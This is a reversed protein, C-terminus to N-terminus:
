GATGNQGAAGPEVAALSSVLDPLRGLTHAIALVNQYERWLVIRGARARLVGIFPMAAQRGTTLVTGALEYEIVAVDATEYLATVRCSEFRVPMTARGARAVALFGARGAIRGPQGPPAFPTEIVVDEALVEIWPEEAFDEPGGIWSRSMLEFLERPSRDTQPTTTPSTM